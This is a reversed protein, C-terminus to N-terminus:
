ATDTKEKKTFVLFNEIEARFLNPASGSYYQPEPDTNFDCPPNPDRIRM